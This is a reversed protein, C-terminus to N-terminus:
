PRTGTLMRRVMGAIALCGTLGPSDVGLLNLWRGDAQSFEIVWDQHGVLRAQIGVQHLELDEEKLDPFFPVSGGTFFVWPSFIGM